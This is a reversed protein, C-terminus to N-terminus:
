ACLGSSKLLHNFNFFIRCQKASYSYAQLYSCIATYTYSMYDGLRKLPSNISIGTVSPKGLTKILHSKQCSCTAKGTRAYSAHIVAAPAVVFLFGAYIYRFLLGCTYTCFFGVPYTCWSHTPTTQTTGPYRSCSHIQIASPNQETISSTNKISGNVCSKWEQMICLHWPSM